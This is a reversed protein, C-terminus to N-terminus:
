TIRNVVTLGIQIYFHLNNIGSTNEILFLRLFETSLIWEIKIRIRIRSGCQFFHIWTMEKLNVSKTLLFIIKLYKTKNKRM